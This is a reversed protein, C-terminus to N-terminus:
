SRLYATMFLSAVMLVIVSYFAFLLIKYERKKSVDQEKNVLRHLNVIDGFHGWFLHTEYGNQKVVYKIFYWLGNALIVWFFMLAM